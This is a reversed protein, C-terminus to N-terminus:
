AARTSHKVALRGRRGIGREGRGSRPSGDEHYRSPWIDAPHLELFTAIVGEARPWPFRMANKLSDDGYGHLRSLRRLSMGRKWLAAVIDAPHWDQSAPKKPTNVTRMSIFM